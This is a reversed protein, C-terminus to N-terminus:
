TRVAARATCRDGPFLYRCCAVAHKLFDPVLQSQLADSDDLAPYRPMEASFLENADTRGVADLVCPLVSLWHLSECGWFFSSLVIAQTAMDWKFTEKMDVVAISINVRDAYNIASCLAVLAVQTHRKEWRPSDTM